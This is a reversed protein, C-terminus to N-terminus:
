RRGASPSEGFRQKYEYSFRGLHTFGWHMAVTAISADPDARLSERARELRLNRLYHMPSVGCYQKFGAYLSRLSVGALLALQDACIPESVHERLYQEVKRVHRPLVTTCPAVRADSFNHPQAGLLTTVVLQEINGVLLAHRNFDSESEACQNLYHLLCRWAACDHWRFGLAFRVPQRQALGFQAEVAREVLGREIRVMLQDSDASWAMATTETPGLVAALLPTSDIRENGSDIRAHGALPMQILYFDDLRGPEIRVQAGYRLRSFAIGGMAMHHM